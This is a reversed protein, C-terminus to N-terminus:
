KIWRKMGRLQQVDNKNIDRIDKIDFYNFLRGLGLGWALVPVDKGLLPIVVEPRLIGSGGLEVWEKKEENWADVEMSPETYPFHGPRMRVKNYGMKAYFEKLYGKLHTLNAHEDIVIGEVQYFEFGHKWDLVENRFVKGVSFFKSPIEDKKLGFLTHATLATTHTRLLMKSSTKEDWHGGWGKSNKLGEEHVQKIKKVIDSNLKASYEKIYFTDQMERAPHDQPVFLADLDWFASQTNTGKMEKFGLEIWINKIYDIVQNEFHKKGIMIKPVEQSVDYTRFQKGRWTRKKLMEPSLKEVYDSVINKLIIKKCQETPIVVLDKKTQVVIISQRQLFDKMMNKEEENLSLVPKPLSKLFDIEKTSNLLQKGKETIGIMLDAKKETTIAQKRKLLGICVNLEEKKLDAKKEIDKLSVLGKIANLFKIEPLGTKVYEKGNKELDITEANIKEISVLKKNSLWQVARTAEVEQMQTKQVIESLLIKRDLFPLVKRELPHLQSLVEEEGMSNLYQM